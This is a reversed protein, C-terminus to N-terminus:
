RAQKSRMAVKLILAYTSIFSNRLSGGVSGSSVRERGEAEGECVVASESRGKVETVEALIEGGPVPELGARALIRREGLRDVQKQQVYEAAEQDDMLHGDAATTFNGPKWTGDYVGEHMLLRDIRALMDLSVIAAVQKGHRTLLCRNRPDQVHTIIQSLHDRARSTPLVLVTSRVM